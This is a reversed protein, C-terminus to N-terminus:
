MLTSCHSLLKKLQEEQNFDIPQTELWAKIERRHASYVTFLNAKTAPYCRNNQDVFFYRKDKILLLDGKADLAEVSTTGGSYFKYTTIASAGTSQGYASMKERKTTKVGEKVALKVTNYDALLEIYGKDRDYYFLSAPPSQEAGVPSTLAVQRVIPEEALAMTDGRATIFHMEGLLVNYNFRADVTTGNIFMVTGSRFQSFRYRDSFAIAKESAAGDRVRIVAATQALSSTAGALGIGAFFLVAKM